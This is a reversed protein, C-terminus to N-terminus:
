GGSLRNKKEFVRSARGAKKKLFRLLEFLPANLASAWWGVMVAVVTVLGELYKLFLLRPWCLGRM